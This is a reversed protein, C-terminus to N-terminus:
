MAKPWLWGFTGGMVFAYLLADFMLKFTTSWKRGYWISDVALGLGIGMFAATAVLRDVQMYSAGPPLAVSAVYGAFTAVILLYIIWQAMMPGMVPPGPKRVTLLMVPGDTMKKQFEATKMEAHTKCRPLMYEGPPIALPGIAARAKDEDPVAPYDNKHWFPGMHLIASAIHVFVASLLIPLWLASLETM